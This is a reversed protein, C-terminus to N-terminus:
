QDTSVGRIMQWTGNIENFRYVRGTKSTVFHYGPARQYEGNIVEGEPQYEYLTILGEEPEIAWGLAARIEPNERWLKGFGREPQFFDEPPQITPDFEPEGEEFTDPYVTWTGNRRDTELLVWIQDIPELWFMRGNEFRQEAVYVQSTTRTPFASPTNLATDAPTSTATEVTAPITASGAPPTATVVIVVPTPTSTATIIVYETPPPGYCAALSVSILTIMGVFLGRKLSLRM